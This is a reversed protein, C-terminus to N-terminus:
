VTSLCTKAGNIFGRQVPTPIKIQNRLLISRHFVHCPWFHFTHLCVSAYRTYVNKNVSRSPRANDKDVSIEDWRIIIYLVITFLYILIVAIPYSPIHLRVFLREHFSTHTHTHPHYKRFPYYLMLMLM